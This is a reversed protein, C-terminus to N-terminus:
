LAMMDRVKDYRLVSGDKCAFNGAFQCHGCLGVACQMNRELSLWLHERTIGRQLASRVSYRMMVEPGCMVVRTRQPHLHALRDILSPVVGVNGAWHMGARDVTTYTEIEAANWGAYQDVFLLTDPDRSGYLLMVRGFEARREFIAQIFPRLPALGIGGAVILVDQGRCDEIPWASGYPGRLGVTTGPELRAFAETVRGVTRITHHLTGRCGDSISIAIEGAGPVYLMNFQGPAFRFTEAGGDILQLEYTAVRDIEPRITQIVARRPLWPNGAIQHNM